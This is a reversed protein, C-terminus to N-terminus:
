HRAAPDLLHKKNQSNPNQAAQTLTPLYDLVLPHPVQLDLIHFKGAPRMDVPLLVLNM